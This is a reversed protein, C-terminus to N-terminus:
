SSAGAASRCTVEKTPDYALPSGVAPSADVAFVGVKLAPEAALGHAIMGLCFFLGALFRNM